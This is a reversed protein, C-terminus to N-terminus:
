ESIENLVKKTDKPIHEQHLTLSLMVITLCCLTLLVLMIRDTDYEYYHARKTLGHNMNSPFRMRLALWILGINLVWASVLRAFDSLTLVQHRQFDCYSLCPM